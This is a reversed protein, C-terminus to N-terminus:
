RVLVLRTGDTSDERDITGDLREMLENSVALIQEDEHEFVVDDEKPAEFRLGFGTGVRALRFVQDPEPRQPLLDKLFAKARDSM